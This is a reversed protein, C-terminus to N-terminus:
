PPLSGNQNIFELVCIQAVNDRLGFRNFEISEEYLLNFQCVYSAAMDSYQVTASAGGYGHIAGDDKVFNVM